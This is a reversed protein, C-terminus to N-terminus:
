CASRKKRASRSSPTASPGADSWNDPYGMLRELWVPNLYGGTRLRERIYEPCWRLSSGIKAGSPRLGTTEKRMCTLEDPGFTRGLSKNPTPLYGFATESTHLVWPAQPFVRGGRMLGSRPWTESFEDSHQTLLCDQSTKWSCSDPDFRALSELSNLGSGAEPEPSGPGSGQSVSIRARSDGTYSIWEDAGRIATSHECTPGCPPVIWGETQWGHFCSPKPTTTSSSTRSPESATLSSGSNSAAWEPSFPSQM